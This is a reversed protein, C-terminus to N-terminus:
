TAHIRLTYRTVLVDPELRSALTDAVLRRQINRHCGEVLDGLLRLSVVTQTSAPPTMSYTEDWRRAAHRILPGTPSQHLAFRFRRALAAKSRGKAPNYLSYDHALSCRLAYIATLDRRSLPDPSFDRLAQEITNPKAVTRGGRPRLASGIEDLLVLYGIAGLWSGPDGDAGTVRGTTRDRATARRADGLAAHYSSIIRDPGAAPPDILYWHLARDLDTTPVRLRHPAAM